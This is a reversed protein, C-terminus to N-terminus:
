TVRGLLFCHMLIMSQLSSFLPLFFNDGSQTDVICVMDKAIKLYLSYGVGKALHPHLDTGADYCSTYINEIEGYHVHDYFYHLSIDFCSVADSNDNNIPLSSRGKM